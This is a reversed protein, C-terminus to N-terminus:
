QEIKRILCFAEAYELGVELGRKRALYEVGEISRPHPYARYETEYYSLALKKRDISSGVDVFTNPHFAYQPSQWSRETSSLTEFTLIERPFFDGANPRLAMMSAEFAVRHDWNYDGPHHLFVRDPRFSHVVSKLRLSIENLGVLDLGNDPLGLRYVKSYGIADAALQSEKQLQAQEAHIADSQGSPHRGAVGDTLIIAECNWKKAKLRAITAGCGLVEDDPHAAIVM